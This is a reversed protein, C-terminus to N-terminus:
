KREQKTRSNNYPKGQIDYFFATFFVKFIQKAVQHPRKLTCFIYQFMGLKRSKAPM